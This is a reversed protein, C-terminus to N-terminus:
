ALRRYLEANKSLVYDVVEDFEREPQNNKNQESESSSNQLSQSSGTSEKIRFMILTCYARLQTVLKSLDADEFYEELNRESSSVAKKASHYIQELESNSFYSSFVDVTESLLLFGSVIRELDDAYQGTRGENIQSLSLLLYSYSISYNTLHDITKILNIAEPYDKYRRWLNFWAKNIRSSIEYKEQYTRSDAKIHNFVFETEDLLNLFLIEDSNELAGDFGQKLREIDELIVRDFSSEIGQIQIDQM